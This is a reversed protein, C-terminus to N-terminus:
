PRDIGSRMPDACQRVAFLQLVTNRLLTASTLLIPPKGGLRKVFEPQAIHFHPCERPCASYLHIFYSLSILTKFLINPERGRRWEM